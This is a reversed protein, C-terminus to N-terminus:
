DVTNLIDEAMEWKQALANWSGQTGDARLLAGEESVWDSRTRIFDDPIIKRLNPFLSRLYRAMDTVVSREIPSRGVYLHQVTENQRPSPRSATGCNSQMPVHAQPLTGAFNVGLTTLHPCNSAIHELGEFTICSTPSWGGAPDLRFLRMRPGWVRVIERVADDGLKWPYLVRLDFVELKPYKGMFPRLDDIGLVDQATDPSELLHEADISGDVILSRLPSDACTSLVSQLITRIISVSRHDEAYDETVDVHFECLNPLTLKDLVHCLSRTGCTAITFSTLTRFSIPIRPIAPDLDGSMEWCSWYLSLKRLLPLLPIVNWINLYKQFNNLLHLERLNRASPLITRAFRIIAERANEQWDYCKLSLHSLHPSQRELTAMFKPRSHSSISGRMESLKNGAGDLVFDLNWGTWSSETDAWVLVRLQPFLVTGLPLPFDVSSWGLQVYDTKWRDALHMERIRSGYFLITPVDEPQLPRLLTWRSISTWVIVGDPSFLPPPSAIASIMFLLEAIGTQCYWLANLCSERFVRGVRGLARVDKVVEPPLPHLRYTADYPDETVERVALNQVILDVLEQIRFIKHM